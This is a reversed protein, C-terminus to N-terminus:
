GAYHQALKSLPQLVLILIMSMFYAGAIADVEALVRQIWWLVLVVTAIVWIPVSYPNHMFFIPTILAGAFGMWLIFSKLTENERYILFVALLSALTREM